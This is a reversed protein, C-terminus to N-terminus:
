FIKIHEFNSAPLGEGGLVYGLIKINLCPVLRSDCWSVNQIEFSQQSKVHMFQKQFRKKVFTLTWSPDYLVSLPSCNNLM